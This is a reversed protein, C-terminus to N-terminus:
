FPTRVQSMQKDLKKIYCIHLNPNRKCVDSLASRTQPKLTRSTVYFTCPGTCQNLSLALSMVGEDEIPNGNIRFSHLNIWNKAADAIPKARSLQINNDSIDLQILKYDKLAGVLAGVGSDMISNHGIYLTTLTQRTCREFGKALACAGSNQLNNSSIDLTALNTFRVLGDALAQAGSSRINNTSIDLTTLNTSHALGRVLALAGASQINNDSIDLESFRIGTHSELCSFFAVAGTTKICCSSMDLSHLTCSELATALIQVDSPSIHGLNIDLKNFRLNPIFYKALLQIGEPSRICGPLSLVHLDQHDFLNNTEVITSLFHSFHQEQINMSAVHFTTFDANPIIAQIKKFARGSIFNNWLYLKFYKIVKAAHAIAMAGRERITNCSLNLSHLKNAYIRDDALSMAGDNGICNCSLELTELATCHKLGRALCSAKNDDIRCDILSLRTTVHSNYKLDASLVEFENITLKCFSMNIEECNCYFCFPLPFYNVEKGESFCVNIFNSCGNFFRGAIKNGSGSLYGELNTVKLIEMTPHRLNNTLADLNKEDLNTNTIDLVKLGQLSHILKNIVSFQESSSNSGYYCLTTILSLRNAAKEVLTKVGDSGVKCEDLVLKYVTQQTNSIVFAMASFDSTTLVSDTFNLSHEKVVSDCTCKQQSEFSCQISFLTGHDHHAQNVLADFMIGQDDFHALGCYFKWAQKLQTKRGHMEILDMQKNTELSFIYYAALFEQFTLHLFTYHNQFGCMTAMSDVTILGFLEEEKPTPFFNKIQAQRMVQKSDLTMEFALKCISIYSAHQSPTLDTFSELLSNKHSRILMRLMAFKTIKEYIETETEPLEASVKDYLFCVM